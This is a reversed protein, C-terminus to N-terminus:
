GDRFRDRHPTFSLRKVCTPAPVVLCVSIEIVTSALRCFFAGDRREFVAFQRTIEITGLPPISGGVGHNETVHEVLQAVQARARPRQSPSSAHANYLSLSVTDLIAALPLGFIASFRQHACM